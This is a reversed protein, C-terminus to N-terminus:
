AVINSAKMLGIPLEFLSLAEVRDTMRCTRRNVEDTRAHQAWLRDQPKDTLWTINQEIMADVSAWFMPSGHVAQQFVQQTNKISTELATYKHQQGTMAALLAPLSQVVHEHQSLCLSAPCQLLSGLTDPHRGAGPKCQSSALCNSSPWQTPLFLLQGRLPRCCLSKLDYQDAQLPLDTASINHLPTKHLPMRQADSSSRHMLMQFPTDANAHHKDVWDHESVM